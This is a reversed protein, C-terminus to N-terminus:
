KLPAPEERGLKISLGLRAVWFSDEWKATGTCLACGALIYTRMENGPDVYLVEGRLLLRESRLFELGGGITWGTNISSNTQSFPPAGLPPTPDSLRHSVDAYALGGTAYVLITDHVTVGLEPACPVLGTSKATCSYQIPGAATPASIPM